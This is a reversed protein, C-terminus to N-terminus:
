ENTLKKHHRARSMRNLNAQTSSSILKNQTVFKKNEGQYHKKLDDVRKVEAQHRADIDDCWSQYQKNIRWQSAGASMQRKHIDQRLTKSFHRRDKKVRSEKDEYKELNNMLLAERKLM